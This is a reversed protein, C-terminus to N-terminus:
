RCPRTSMAPPSAPAPRLHLHLRRFLTGTRCDSCPRCARCARCAIKDRRPQPQPQIQTSCTPTSDLLPHSTPAPPAPLCSPFFFILFYSSSNDLSTPLLLYLLCTAPRFLCLLFIAPQRDIVRPPQLKVAVHVPWSPRTRLAPSTSSTRRRCPISSATARPVHVV